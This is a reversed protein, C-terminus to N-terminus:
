GDGDVVAAADSFSMSQIAVATTVGFALGRTSQQNHSDYFASAYRLYGTFSIATGNGQQLDGGATGPICGVPIVSNSTSGGSLSSKVTTEEMSFNM